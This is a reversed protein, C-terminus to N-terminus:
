TVSGEDFNGGDAASVYGWGGVDVEKGEPKRFKKSTQAKAIFEVAKKLCKELKERQDKDEEEGYASALFMTAFGHGYMYRTAETPNRVDGLLGNPQQRNPALFWEVAKKVQDSYKGEKLTSGEMLFCMGALATMTTPYQGGQAEWHGDQAQSKKLYELGKEVAEETRKKLAKDEAKKDQALLLAPMTLLLSGVGAAVIALLWSRSM